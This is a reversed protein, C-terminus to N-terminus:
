HRRRQHRHRHRARVPEGLEQAGRHDCRRDYHAYAWMISRPNHSHAPDSPNLPDRYGALHGYEHLLAPCLERWRWARATGPVTALLAALLAIRQAKRM